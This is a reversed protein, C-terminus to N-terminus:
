PTRASRPEPCRQRAIAAFGNLTVSYLGEEQAALAAPDQCVAAPEIWYREEKGGDDAKRSFGHRPYFDRTMENKPTPLRRAHVTQVGREAADALVVRLLESEIERGFARCSMLFSDIEWEACPGARREDGTAAEGRHTAERRCPTAIAVGVIGYDSFRDKMSMTYIAGVEMLREVDSVSYRKTTLNFQNTRQALQSVRQVASRDQRGIELEVQLSRIFSTMDPAASRLKERQANARISATRKLDDDTVHLRSMGRLSAIFAPIAMPDSPFREVQVEPFATRVRECEVPSDDIFVLSDLGINLEAAIEQINSAKDNWNIRRAAFDDERLVMEPSEALFTLVDSANNKSNVALLFGRLGLGKLFFQFERYVSGPYETGIALRDPGDEGLVGGWLTNDCDVVVCKKPPLAFTSLVDAFADALRPLFGAAFPNRTLFGMRRDYARSRGYEGVLRDLDLIAARSNPSLREVLASNVARRRQQWSHPDQDGHLAHTAVPDPPLNAVVVGARSREVLGNVIGEIRDLLTDAMDAPPDHRADGALETPDFYLFVYDPGPTGLKLPDAAYQEYASYDGVHFSAKVGQRLLAVFLEPLWPEVTANRLIAIRASVFGQVVHPAEASRRYAEVCQAYSPRDADEGGTSAEGHAVQRFYASWGVTPGGPSIAPSM